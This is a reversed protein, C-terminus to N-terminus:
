EPARLEAELRELAAPTDVDTPAAFPFAVVQVRAPDRAIVERAGIDGSVTLLEPVVSRDFLVPNGREGDYEPVVIAARRARWREILATHVASPIAPQDGLAVLVARSRAPLARIGEALSSALGERARPNEIVRVRLGDLVARVESTGVAIVVITERVPADLMHEVSWRLVAKGELPAVLKQAGFRRAAGAALVLGTVM